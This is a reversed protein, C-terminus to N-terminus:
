TTFSTASLLEESHVGILNAKDLGNTLSGRFRVYGFIDNFRCFDEHDGTATKLASPSFRHM